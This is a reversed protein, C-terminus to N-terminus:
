EVKEIAKVVADLAQAAEPGSASLEVRQGQTVGLAMLELVSAADAGNLTVEADFSGAVRAVLAATGGFPSHLCSQCIKLSSEVRM